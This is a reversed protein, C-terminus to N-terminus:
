RPAGRMVNKVRPMKAPSAEKIMEEFPIFEIESKVDLTKEIEFKLKESIDEVRKGGKDALLLRLKDMNDSYKVMQFIGHDIGPITDVIEKIEIAFISKGGIIVEDNRRGLWHSRTSTRGCPCKETSMYGLDDTRFRLLPMAELSLATCVHEGREGERVVNGTDPDIVEVFFLDDGSSHTGAVETCEFTMNFPDSYGAMQFM